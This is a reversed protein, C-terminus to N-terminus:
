RLLFWYVLFVVLLIIALLLLNAVIRLVLSDSTRWEQFRENSAPFLAVGVAIIADLALELIFGM